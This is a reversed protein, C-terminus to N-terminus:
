AAEDEPIIADAILSGIKEAVKGMRGYRGKALRHARKTIKAIDIRGFAEIADTHVSHAFHAGLFHWVALITYDDFCRADSRQICRIVVSAREADNSWLRKMTRGGYIINTPRSPFPRGESFPRVRVGFGELWRHFNNGNASRTPM